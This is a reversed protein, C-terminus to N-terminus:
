GSTSCSPRKGPGGCTGIFSPTGAFRWVCTASAPVCLAFLHSASGAAGRPTNPLLSSALMHVLWVGEELFHTGLPSRLVAVQYAPIAGLAKFANLVLLFLVHLAWRGSKDLSDLSANSVIVDIDKVILHILPIGAAQCQCFEAHVAETLGGATEGRHKEFSGKCRSYENPLVQLAHAWVLDLWKGLQLKPESVSSRDQIRM